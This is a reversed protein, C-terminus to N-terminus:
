RPAVCDAEGPVGTRLPDVVETHTSSTTLSGEDGGIAPLLTLPVRLRVEVTVPVCREFSGGVVEVEIADPDRGYASTTARAAREAVRQAVDQSPAEVFARAAERAGADAAFKGDVVAWANVILLTGFVFVLVAVPLVEAGALGHECRWRAGGIM